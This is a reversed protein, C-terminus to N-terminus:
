KAALKEFSETIQNILKSRVELEVAGGGPGSIEVAKKQAHGYKVLDKLASLRLDIPRVEDFAIDALAYLPDGHQTVIKEYATRTDVLEGRTSFEIPKHPNDKKYM